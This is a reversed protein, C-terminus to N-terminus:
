YDTLQEVQRRLDAIQQELRGKREQHQEWAQVLAWSLDSIQDGSQMLPQVSQPDFDGSPIHRVAATLCQVPRVLRREVLSGGAFVLTLFALTIVLGLQGLLSLRRNSTELQAEIEPQLQQVQQLSLRQLNSLYFNLEQSREFALKWDQKEGAAQVAQFLAEYALFERSLEYGLGGQDATASIGSVLVGIKDRFRESNRLYRPDHMLLYSLQARELFQTQNYLTWAQNLEDAKEELLITDSRLREFIILAGVLILSCTILILGLVSILRFQLTTKPPSTKM